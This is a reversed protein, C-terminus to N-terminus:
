TPVAGVRGKIDSGDTFFQLHTPSEQKQIEDHEKVATEADPAIRFNPTKWWPPTIASIKAEIRAFTSHGLIQCAIIELRHLASIRTARYQPEGVKRLGRLHAHLPSAKIRVTAMLSHHLLQEAIPMIGAEVELVARFAGTAVCLASKQLAALEQIMKKRRTITGKVPTPIYWTSCAFTIRPIIIAKVLTLMNERSVGWTSGSIATLAQISKSVREKIHNVHPTGSLRHDLIVGLYRAEPVPHIVRAAGDKTGLDLEREGDDLQATAGKHIFHILEYMQWAFVSTANQGSTLGRM